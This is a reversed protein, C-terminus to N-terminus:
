IPKSRTNDIAAPIVPHGRYHGRRDAPQPHHFQTPSIATSPVADDTARIETSTVPEPPEAPLSLNYGVFFLLLAIGLIFFLWMAKTAQKLRRRSASTAADNLNGHTAEAINQAYRSLAFRALIGALITCMLLAWSAILAPVQRLTPTFTALPVLANISVIIAGSAVLILQGIAKEKYGRSEEYLDRVAQVRQNMFDRDPM